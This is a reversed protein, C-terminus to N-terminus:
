SFLTNAARRGSEPLGELLLEVSRRSYYDVMTTSTHGTYNKLDEASMVRRMRSVYTYRLSHPVLKRGDAPALRKIGKGNPILGIKQLARYFVKEAYEARVPKGNQTFCFDDDALGCSDIWKQMKDVTDDPLYAIRFKPQDVSGTKNYGTREGNQKCFGNIIIIKKSFVLQQVRVARVEGLRMGASLCLLFFLYMMENPFNNEKFLANLEETTLIDAKKSHRVFTRFCPKVINCDFWIAEQFIEAFVSLYSNKWSGSRDVTFLYHMIEKPNLTLIDYNGWKEIIREIYGRSIHLTEPSVSLGLQLRRSMHESGTLFMTQAIDKVTINMNKNNLPPLTRIYSEADSRNNCGKCAKQIQKGNQTYYYYWKYIKKGNKIKPKKFVHYDM